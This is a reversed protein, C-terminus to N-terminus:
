VAVVTFVNMPKGAYKNDLWVLCCQKIQVIIAYCTSRHWHKLVCSVPTNKEISVLEVVFNIRYSNNPM